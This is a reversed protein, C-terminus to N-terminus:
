SSKRSQIRYQKPTLGVMKVFATHFHNSSNYGITMAIDTISMDTDFLLNQGEGIRRRIIYQMPSLGTMNKFVHAMYFKSMKFHESIDHLFLDEKYHADIYKKISHGLVNFEDQSQEEERNEYLSYCIGILAKSFTVATEADYPNKAKAYHHILQFTSLLRPYEEKAAIVPSSESPILTNDELGRIHVNTIACNYVSLNVDHVAHEQHICGKGLVILDGKGVKYKKNDITFIGNGNEVLIIEIRDDHAHMARAGKRYDANEHGICLLKPIRMDSIVHAFNKKQRVYTM